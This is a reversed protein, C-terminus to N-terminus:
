APLKTGQEEDSASACFEHGLFKFLLGIESDPLGMGRLNEVVHILVRFGEIRAAVTADVNDRGANKKRLATSFLLVNDNSM